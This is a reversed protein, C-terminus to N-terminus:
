FRLELVLEYMRHICGNERILEIDFLVKQQKLFQYNLGCILIQKQRDLPSELRFNDYRSIISVTKKYLYLEGFFSYGRHSVANFLTDTFSGYSNGRGQFYQATLVARKSEWSAFGHNVHFRPEEPINGRGTLFNYSFQLGPLRGPFPRVTLRGEMNKWENKELAHYGGGNYVGFSLSGYKGPNSSNVERLYKSDMTGGLLASFTVGFDASNMIRLRELPLTGQVRYRNISEEFALWPRHVMGFELHWNSGLFSHPPNVRLYLYKLRMEVNGADDGEEDLTIDQTFRVTFLPSLEKQFTIYGRKLTFLNEHQNDKTLYQYALFWQGTVYLEPDFSRELSDIQATAHLCFVFLLLSATATTRFPVM